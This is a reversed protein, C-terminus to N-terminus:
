PKLWGVLTLAKTQRVFIKWTQPYFAGAIYSAFAQSIVTAVAAGTAGYKDIFLLNLIINVVAGVSTTAASFKMLGETTLWTERALGLAVFIGAWISITLVNAAEAYQDGYFFNILFSSSLTIAIAFIYGTTAVFNFIKQLRKYYLEESIEKAQVVSPFVSNIIAQPVFYWLESIKVAVSYVGVAETGKMQGLMIQDIRMYIIIVIGSLILPWSDKLLTKARELKVRWQLLSGSNKQYVFILSVSTIAQEVALAIAFALLPARLQILIIKIVNIFIYSSNRAWVTYKAQVQSQFWYDISDFAKFTAGAAIIATVWLTLRSDPNLFFVALIILFFTVISSIVKLVFSTGLTEEKHESNRALDRVVIQDLGLKAIPSFLAVIAWAYNILGFREPALYRAVWAGVLFGFGMQFIKEAFLWATNGIIKRLNPSFRKPLDAIKKLM